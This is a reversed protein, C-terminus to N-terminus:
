ISRKKIFHSIIIDNHLNEEIVKLANHAMEVTSYGVSTIPLQYKDIAKINDFGVIKANKTKFYAQFAYHDCSCIITTKQKYEREIEDINVAVTYDINGVANLFGEYRRRQSSADPYNLAPSFYVLKEPKDLLIEKTIEAMASFNDIGVYPLFDIKNGVSVIPIDFLKLYNNFEAGSNVSCLIIGKVGMNYMNRICEIEYAKNYHSMMVTTCLGKERLAYEVETILESFYENNLNFVIIGIQGTIKDPQADIHQRYGYQRAVSLIKEKTSANIGVRNNLARDVTGQSVDCIKAIHSTSIQLNKM